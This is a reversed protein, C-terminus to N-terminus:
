TIPAKPTAFSLHAERRSWRWERGPAEGTEADYWGDSATVPNTASAVMVAAVEYARMCRDQVALPLRSGSSRSFVGAKLCMRDPRTRADAARRPQSARRPM